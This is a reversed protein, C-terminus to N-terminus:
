TLLAIAFSTKYGPGFSLTTSPLSSEVPSCRPATGSRRLTRHQAPVATADCQKEQLRTTNARLGSTESVMAITATVKTINSPRTCLM